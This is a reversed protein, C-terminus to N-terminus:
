ASARIDDHDDHMAVRRPAQALTASSEIEVILNQIRRKQTEFFRMAHDDPTKSSLEDTLRREFQEQRHRLSALRHTGM